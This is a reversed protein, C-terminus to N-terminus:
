EDAVADERVQVRSQEPIVSALVVEIASGGKMALDASPHPVILPISRSLSVGM